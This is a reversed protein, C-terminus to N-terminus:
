AAMGSRRSSLGFVSGANSKQKNLGEFFRDHCLVLQGHANGHLPLRLWVHKLGKAENTGYVPEQAHLADLIGEGLIRSVDRRLACLRIGRADGGFFRRLRSGAFRFKVDGTADIEVLSMHGLHLRLLGPDFAERSPLQEGNCANQWVGMLQQHAHRIGNEDTSEFKM